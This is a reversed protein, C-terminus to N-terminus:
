ENVGPGAQHSEVGSDDDDDVPRILDRSLLEELMRDLARGAEEEEVSFERRLAHLLQTRTAGEQLEKWLVAATENLQFYSRSAMDLLVAEGELHAALVDDTVVFRDDSPSM